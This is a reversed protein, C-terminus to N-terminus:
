LHEQLLFKKIGILYEETRSETVLIERFKGMKRLIQFDELGKVERAPIRDTATVNIALDKVIFDVESQGKSWYMIPNLFDRVELLKLLVTNEFKQGKNKSFQINSIHILGNDIVYYKPLRTVDHRKKISYSFHSVELLLYADVMYSIYTSVTKNTIGLSKALKNVSVKGGAMSVIAKTVIILERTNRIKHRDVIDRHIIDMIYQNLITRKKEESKELVVEPFGGYTLYEEIDAKKNFKIFEKYSLPRIEFTINRGTLLTGLDRDLLQASSGTVVFKINTEQDYKTKVWREWGPVRQIEDLFCFIKEKNKTHLLYAELIQELLELKLDGTVDDFNVYLFQNEDIGEKIMHMMLQKLITTKGCRRIGKLILIHKMDMSNLLKKLYDSRTKGTNITNGWPNWIKLIEIIKEKEM